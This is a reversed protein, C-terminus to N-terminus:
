AVQINAPGNQRNFAKIGDIATKGIEAATAFGGQIIVNYTDGSVGPLGSFDLYRPDFTVGGGMDVPTFGDSNPGGGGGTVTATVDEFASSSIGLIERLRDLSLNPNKLIKILLPM